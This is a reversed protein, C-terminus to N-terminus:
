SQKMAAEITPRDLDKAIYVNHNCMKWNQVCTHLTIAQANSAGLGTTVTTKPTGM